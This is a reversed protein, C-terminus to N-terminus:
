EEGRYFKAANEPSVINIYTEAGIEFGAWKNIRPTIEIHFHLNRLESINELNKNSSEPSNHIFLNYSADMQKLKIFTKKLIQSLELLEWDDMETISLYHKKPFIWIEYNFRSAYPTFAVFSNNEFCRRLSSKEINLIDCYPCHNFKKVANIESMVLPPIHNLAAVQTHSHKLSTGAEKGSNKFIMVYKINQKKSLEEIRNKYVKLLDKLEFDELDHLQKKHDNTEAIVEQIGYADSFTFYDNDTKIEATGKEEVFAFKNNFWRIKWPEGIRGKESPTLSENGPCFFCEKIEKEFDNLSEIKENQIKENQENKKFDDHRKGRDEAVLVYRDLIYDKRLEM